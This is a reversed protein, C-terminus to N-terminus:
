LCRHTCRERPARPKPTAPKVLSTAILHGTARVDLLQGTQADFVAITQGSSYRNGGVFFAGAYKTTVQYIRRDGSIFYSHGPIKADSWTMPSDCGKCEVNVVSSDKRMYTTQLFRKPDVFHIGPVNVNGPLLIASRRYYHQQQPTPSSSATTAAPTTNEVERTGGACAVLLLLFAATIIKGFTM